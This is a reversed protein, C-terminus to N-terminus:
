EAQRSFAAAAEPALGLASHLRALYEREPASQSGDANCVCVALEYALQRAQPSGLDAAASALTRRGLRVDEYLAPLDAGGGGPLTRSIREIEARETEDRAGDSFAAMLCIGLTADREQDTM